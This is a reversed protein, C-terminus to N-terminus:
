VYLGRPAMRMWVVAITVSWVNVLCFAQIPHEDFYNDILVAM